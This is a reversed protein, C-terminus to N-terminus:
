SKKMRNRCTKSGKYNNYEVFETPSNTVILIEDFLDNITNIIRSIITKGDIVINSKITGDFRKNAGGSLIVGSIKREM